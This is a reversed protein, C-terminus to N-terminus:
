FEIHFDDNAMLKEHRGHVVDVLKVLFKQSITSMVEGIREKLEELHKSKALYVQKKLWGGLFTM